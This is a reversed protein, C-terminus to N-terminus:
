KALTSDPLEDNWDRKTAQAAVGAVGQAFERDCKLKSALCRRMTDLLRLEADQRQLLVEHAGQGQLETSFGM